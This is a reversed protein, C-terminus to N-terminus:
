KGKINAFLDRKTCLEIFIYYIKKCLTAIVKSNEKQQLVRRQNKKTPALNLYRCVILFNSEFKNDKSNGNSKQPIPYLKAIYLPFLEYLVNLKIILDYICFHDMSFHYLAQIIGTFTKNVEVPARPNPPEIRSEKLHDSFFFFFLIFLM